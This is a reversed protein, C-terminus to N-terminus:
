DDDSSLMKPTRSTYDDEEFEQDVPMMLLNTEHKPKTGNTKM